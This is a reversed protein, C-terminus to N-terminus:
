NRSEAGKCQRDTSRDAPPREDNGSTRKQTFRTRHSADDPQQDTKQDHDDDSDIVTIHDIFIRIIVATYKTIGFIRQASIM